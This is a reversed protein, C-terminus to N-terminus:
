KERFPNFGIQRIAAEKMEDLKAKDIKAVELRLDEGVLTNYRILAHYVSLDILMAHLDSSGTGTVAAPVKLYLLKLNNVIGDPTNYPAVPFEFKGDAFYGKIQSFKNSGNGAEEYPNRFIKTLDKSTIFKIPCYSASAFQLTASIPIFFNDPLTFSKTSNDADWVSNTEITNLLATKEPYFPALVKVAQQEGWTLTKDVATDFDAFNGTGLINEADSSSIGAYTKFYKRLDDFTYTQAM